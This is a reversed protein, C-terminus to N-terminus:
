RNCVQRGIWLLVLWPVSDKIAEKWARKSLWACASHDGDKRDPEGIHACLSYFQNEKGHDLSLSLIDIYIYIQVYIYIYRYIYVYYIYIYIYIIYIYM